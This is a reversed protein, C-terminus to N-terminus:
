TIGYIQLQSNPLFKDTDHGDTQLTVQIVAATNEWQYNYTVVEVDTADERFYSRSHMIKNFTTSSYFPIITEIAAFYNAPSSDGPIRGFGAGDANTHAVTAAQGLLRGRRYNTSTTDGNLFLDAADLTAAVDSRTLLLLKLHNHVQTIGSVDFNGAVTLTEDHLLIWVSDGGGPNNIGM